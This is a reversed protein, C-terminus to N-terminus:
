PTVLNVKVKAGGKGSNGQYTLEVYAGSQKLSYKKKANIKLVINTSKAGNLKLWVYKNDFKVVQFKFPTASDFTFWNKKCVTYTGNGGKEDTCSDGTSDLATTNSDVKFLARGEAGVGLYTVIVYKGPKNAVYFTEPENIVLDFDNEDLNVFEVSATEGDHDLVKIKTGSWAHDVAYGTCVIFTVNGGKIDSCAPLSTGSNTTTPLNSTNFKFYTYDSWQGASGNPFVPLVRTRFQNDGALPQTTFSNSYTKWKFTDSWDAGVSCHDCGVEVVYNAVNKVEQWNINAIRPFNTFVSNNLPATITTKSSLDYSFVAEAKKAQCAGAVCGNECKYWQTHVYNKGNGASCHTEAIYEGSYKNKDGVYAGCTDGYTGYVGTVEDNGTTNGYVYNNFNDTESCTAAPAPKPQCAGASCGYECKYWQTHVYPAASTGSCHKEAIYEGSSQGQDGVYKGCSDQYSGVVQSVEDKGNASGFANYNLGNDSESCSNVQVPASKCAGDGCGYTCKTLKHESAYVPDNSLCVLEELYGGNEDRVRNSDVCYEEVVQKGYTSTFVNLIGKNYINYGGDSDDCTPMAKTQPGSTCPKWDVRYQTESLCVMTYDKLGNGADRCGTTLTDSGGDTRTISIDKGVQVCKTVNVPNWGVEPLAASAIKPSFAIVLAALLWVSKKM